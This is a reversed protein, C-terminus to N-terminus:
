LNVLQLRVVFERGTNDVTVSRDFLLKYRKKINELGLKTSPLTHTILQINNKVVLDDGEDYISIYLPQATSAINHKIANEILLQLTIPPIGKRQNQPSVNVQINVNEGHRIRILFSYAAIFNLEDQLSIVDNNLNTIMYRYVKSLKELFSSALAADEEILASLTSFNNFLFHPDLQLKLSQLQAQMAIEKLKAANLQLQAAELMSSKWRKLFYNGTHVASILIAMLLCVFVFQWEGLEDFFCADTPPWLLTIIFDLVKLLIFTGILSFITQIISRILPRREWPMWRDMWRAAALSVETIGSCTLLGLFIEVLFRGIPLNLLYDWYSSFPNIFYSIAIYVIFVLPITFLRYYRYFTKTDTM